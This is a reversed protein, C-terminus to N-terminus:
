AGDEAPKLTKKMQQCFKAKRSRLLEAMRKLALDKQGVTIEAMASSAEKAKTALEYAYAKIDNMQKEM